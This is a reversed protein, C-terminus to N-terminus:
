FFHLLMDVFCSLTDSVVNLAHGNEDLKLRALLCPPTLVAVHWYKGNTTPGVMVLQQLLVMKFIPFNRSGDKFVKAHM